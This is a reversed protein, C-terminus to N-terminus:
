AVRLRYYLVLFILFVAIIWPLTADLVAFYAIRGVWDTVSPVIVFELNAPVFFSTLGHYLGTFSVSDVFDARYVQEGIPVIQLFQATIVLGTASVANFAIWPLILLSGTAGKSLM